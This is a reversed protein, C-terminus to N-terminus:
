EMYDELGGNIVSYDVGQLVEDGLGEIVEYEGMELAAVDEYAGLSALAGVRALAGVGPVVKVALKAGGAALMGYGAFKMMGSKQKSLFLGAIIPIAALLMPNQIKGSLKNQLMNAGIVGVTLGALNGFTDKKIIGKLM